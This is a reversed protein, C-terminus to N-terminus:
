SDANYSATFFNVKPFLPSLSQVAQSAQEKEYCFVFLSSGSGSINAMFGLDQMKDLIMDVFVFKERIACSLSNHIEFRKKQRIMEVVDYSSRWSCSRQLNLNKYAWSASLPFSLDAIVFHCSPLSVFDLKEGVGRVVAPKSYIFFPVDAGLQKALSLLAEESLCFDYYQNLYRLVRAANSSGGGLGGAVPIKKDLVIKWSQNKGSVQNFKEVAQWCLNKDDNPVNGQKTVLKMRRSLTLTIKDYIDNLPVFLSDIQHYGDAQLSLVNLFVNVKAYSLISM